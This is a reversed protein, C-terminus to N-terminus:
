YGAVCAQILMDTSYLQLISVMAVVYCHATILHLTNPIVSFPFFCTLPMVSSHARALNTDAQCM